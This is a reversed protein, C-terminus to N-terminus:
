SRATEMLSGQMTTNLEHAAPSWTVTYTRGGIILSDSPLIDADTPVHIVVGTGDAGKELVVRCPRAASTVGSRVVQYRDPMATAQQFARGKRAAGVASM